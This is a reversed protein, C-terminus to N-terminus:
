SSNGSLCKLNAKLHRYSRRQSDNLTLESEILSRIRGETTAGAVLLLYYLENAAQLYPILLPSDDSYGKTTTPNGNAITGNLSGSKILSRIRGKASGM